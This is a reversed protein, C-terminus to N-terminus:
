CNSQHEEEKISRYLLYDTYSLPLDKKDQISVHCKSKFITSRTLKGM